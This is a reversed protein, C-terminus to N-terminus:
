NPFLTTNQGMVMLNRIDQDTIDISPMSGAFTCGADIHERDNPMGWIAKHQVEHPDSRFMEGLFLGQCYIDIAKGDAGHCSKCNANYTVLGATGDGNKGINSFTKTGTPYVGTTTLTYFDNVDHATSKLFKVIDWIQADTLIVGYDPMTANYVTSSSIKRGGTNKVANFIESISHEKSWKYLNENAVVPYTASSAKDILVGNKGLLDWGHCSKCRYFNTYTNPYDTQNANIYNLVHDYMKAGNIGDAADYAEQDPDDKKCSDILVITFIFVVAIEVGYFLKRKM